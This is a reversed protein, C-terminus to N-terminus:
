PYNEVGGRVQIEKYLIKFMNKYYENRKPCKIKKVYDDFQAFGFHYLVKRILWAYNFFPVDFYLKLFSTELLEFLFLCRKMDNLSFTKPPPTYNTLFLKCFAHLSHYRKDKINLQKIFNMLSDATEFQKGVLHKYIQTDKCDLNPSTIKELIKKFRKKRQYFCIQLPDNYSDISSIFHQINKQVLGCEICVAKGSGNIFRIDCKVCFM